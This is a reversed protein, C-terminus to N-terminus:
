EEGGLKEIIEDKYWLLINTITYGVITIKAVTFGTFSIILNALLIFPLTRNMIKNCGKM